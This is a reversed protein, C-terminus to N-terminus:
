EISEVSLILMVDGTPRQGKQAPFRINHNESGYGAYGKAEVSASRLAELGSRL